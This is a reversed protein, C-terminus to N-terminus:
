ANRRAFSLLSLIPILVFLIVFPIAALYIIFNYFNISIFNPNIYHIILFIILIAIIYVLFVYSTNLFSSSLISKIKRKSNGIREAIWLSVILPFIIAGPIYIIATGAESLFKLSSSPIASPDLNVILILLLGIGLMFVWFLIPETIKIENLIVQEETEKNPSQSNTEKEDVVKYEIHKM